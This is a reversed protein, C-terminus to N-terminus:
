FPWQLGVTEVVLLGAYAVLLMGGLSAYAVVLLRERRVDAMSLVASVSGFVPVNTLQMLSRRTDFTPWLQSILFALAVGVALGAGLVMSMLLPRNPGSPQLPVRPPDIIKFRVDQSTQEIQQSMKASERRTLLDEFKRRNVAYDRNLGALDAEIQPVTDVQGQLEKVRRDFAAVRAQLSAINAEEQGLAIKLQQYVPNADVGQPGFSSTNNDSSSATSAASAAYQALEEDRQKKLDLMTQKIIIVDPHKETYKILLEDLMKELNQIRTDIPLATAAKRPDSGPQPGIGFTPEEGGIQQLLSNRRNEAQTLELRAAELETTAQQMRSFYSQGEAGMLAVNKRKFEKVRDEAEALRDEYEAIQKDLFRQATDTDLRTDGLLNEAFVTVVAQVVKKALEPNRDQYAVSYLNERGSAGLRIKKQLGNLKQDLADPDKAQIDLDTLRAIKELNPRSLLTRTVLGIQADPNVNVALGQLLPRLVSQTDVFVRASAEYQDPLKHVVVWGILCVLWACGLAYWRNRWIGRLYGLLQEIIENM